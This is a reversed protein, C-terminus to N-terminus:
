GASMADGRTQAAALRDSRITAAQVWDVFEEHTVRVHQRVAAEAFDPERKALAAVLPLHNDRTRYLDEARLLRRYVGLWLALNLVSIRRMFDMLRRNGTRQVVYAHFASDTEVVADFDGQVCADHNAQHLEHLRALDADTIRPAVLRFALAELAERLVTMEVADQVTFENVYTGRHPTIRVLGEDALRRLAERIPTRSVGLRQGLEDEALRTGAPLEGQLISRRLEDTALQAMTRHTM